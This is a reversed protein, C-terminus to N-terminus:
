SKGREEIENKGIETFKNALVKILRRTAYIYKESLPDFNGTDDRDVEMYNILNLAANVLSTTAIPMLSPTDVSSHKVAYIFLTFEEIVLSENKYFFRAFDDKCNEELTLTKM